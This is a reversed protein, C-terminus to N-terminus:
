KPSQYKTFSMFEFAYWRSGLNDLNPTNSPVPESPRRGIKKPSKTVATSCEGETSLISTSRSSSGDKSSSSPFVTESSEEQVGELSSLDWLNEHEWVKKETKFKAVQNWHRIRSKTLVNDLKIDNPDDINSSSLARYIDYVKHSPEKSCIYIALTLRLMDTHRLDMKDFRRKKIKIGADKMQEYIEDQTQNSTLAEYIGECSASKLIPHRRDKDRKLCSFWKLIRRTTALVLGPGEEDSSDSKHRKKPNVAAPL